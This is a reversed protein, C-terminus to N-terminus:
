CASVSHTTLELVLHECLVILATLQGIAPPISGTFQNDSLARHAFWCFHAGVIDFAVVVYLYNLTSLQGITSPIQGILQNSYLSRYFHSRM